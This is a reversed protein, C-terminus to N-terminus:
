GFELSRSRSRQDVPLPSTWVTGFKLKRYIREDGRRWEPMWAGIGAARMANMEFFPTRYKLKGATSRVLDLGCNAAMEDIRGLDDPISPRVGHPPTSLFIHGGISCRSAADTLMECFQVPYWPPDLIAAAFSGFFEGHHFRTDRATLNRLGDSIINHEGIVSFRCDNGSRAAAIVLSPVGMLLINDGPRTVSVAAALLDEGTSDTFRWECDMPHPLALGEGQPNGTGAIFTAADRLLRQVHRRLTPDPTDYGRLVELLETPHQGGAALVFDPFTMCSFITPLGIAPGRHTISTEPRSITRM